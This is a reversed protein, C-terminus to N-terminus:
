QAELLETVVRVSNHYDAVTRSFRRAHARYHDIHTLVERLLESVQAVDSFALGVAGMPCSGGPLGAASMFELAVEALALPEASWANSWVVGVEVSGSALHALARVSHQLPGRGVITEARCLTRGLADRQEIGIRVFVGAPAAMPWRFSVLLEDAGAPVAYAAGVPTAGLAVVGHVEGHTVDRWEVRRLRTAVDELWRQNEDAIQAALWSGAPVIVPVGACLMELLVGSCRAYYRESDYVMLGVDASRVLEAYRELGLPFPAYSVPQSHAAGAGPLSLRFKRRGTQLVLQARGTAFFDDWLKGVIEQLHGYGKERRSHGVCAVRLAQGPEPPRQPARFLEHVPYPLVHFPAVELRAYQEALTETTCHFHLRHRPVRKLAARFVARLVAVSASQPAYDTERGRFVPFHFQLHWAAAETAADSALYDVLGVLDLESCTALFVHDGRALGVQRFLLACDAAFARARRRRAQQEFLGRLRSLWPLSGDTRGGASRTAGQQDLTHRSYSEYRFLAHVEWGGPLQDRGRFRRHTALM